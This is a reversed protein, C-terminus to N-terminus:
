EQLGTFHHRAKWIWLTCPFVVKSFCGLVGHGKGAATRGKRDKVGARAGKSLLYEMISRQGRAAAVHLLTERSPNLVNLDNDKMTKELEPLSGEAVAAFINVAAPDKRPKTARSLPTVKGKKKLAGKHKKKGLDTKKGRTSNAAIKLGFKIKKLYIGM